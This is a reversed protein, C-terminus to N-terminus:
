YEDDLDDIILANPIRIETCEIPKIDISNAPAYDNYEEDNECLSDSEDQLFKFIKVLGLSLVKDSPFEIPNGSLCNNALHSRKSWDLKKLQYFKHPLRRLKNNGLWLTRLNVLDCLSSPLHEIKNEFLILTQIESALHSIENPISYIKNFSM